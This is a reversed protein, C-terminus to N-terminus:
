ACHLQRRLLRRIDPLLRFRMQLPPMQLRQSIPPDGSCDRAAADVTRIFISPRTQSGTPPSTSYGQWFRLAAPTCICRDSCLDGKGSYALQNWEIFHQFRHVSYSLTKRCLKPLCSEAAACRCRRCACGAMHTILSQLTKCIYILM